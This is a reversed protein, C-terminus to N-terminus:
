VYAWYQESWYWNNESMYSIM